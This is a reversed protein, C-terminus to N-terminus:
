PLTGTRKCQLSLFAHIWCVAFTSTILMRAGNNLLRNMPRNRVHKLILLGCMLRIPKAPRGNVACYLPSFAEEFRRWDIKNALLYLPHRPNLQDTLSSFLSPQPTTKNIMIIQLNEVM